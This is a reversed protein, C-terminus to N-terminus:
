SKRFLLTNLFSFPNWINQLDSIDLKTDWNTSLANNVTKANVPTASTPPVVKEGDVKVKDNESVDFALNSVVKGNVTVRGATIYEECKRRSALGTSALFKNIRM